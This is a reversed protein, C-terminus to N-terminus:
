SPRFQKNFHDIQLIQKKRARVLFELNKKEENRVNKSTESEQSSSSKLHQFLSGFNFSPVTNKFPKSFDDLRFVKKQVLNGKAANLFPQHTYSFLIFDLRYLNYLEEVQDVTLLSFYDLAREMSSLLEGDTNAEKSTLNLNLQDLWSSVENSIISIM